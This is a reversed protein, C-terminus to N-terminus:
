TDAVTLNYKGPNKLVDIVAAAFQEIDSLREQIITYMEEQTIEDELSRRLYHESLAFNKKDSLFDKKPIKAMQELESLSERIIALKTEIKIKSVSVTNM